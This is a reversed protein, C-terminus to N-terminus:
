QKGFWSFGGDLISTPQTVYDGTSTTTDSFGKSNITELFTANNGMAVPLGQGIGRGSLRNPNFIGRKVNAASTNPDVKEGSIYKLLDSIDVKGKRVSLVFRHEEETRPGKQRLITHVMKLQSIAWDFMWDQEKFYEPCQEQCMKVSEVSYGNSRMYQEWYRYWDLRALADREKENIDNLLAPDLNYSANINIGDHSKQFGKLAEWGKQIKEKEPIFPGSLIPLGSDRTVNMIPANTRTEFEDVADNLRAGSSVGTNIASSNYAQAVRDVRSAGRSGAGSQM